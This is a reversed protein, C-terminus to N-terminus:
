LACVHDPGCSTPAECVSADATCDRFCTGLEADRILFQTAITPDVHVVVCRAGAGCVDMGGLAASDCPAIQCFGDSCFGFGLPNPCQDNSTCPSGVTATTSGAQQAGPTPYCFPHTAHDGYDQRAPVCADVARCPGPAGVLGDTGLTCDPACIAFSQFETFGFAVCEQGASCAYAGGLDCNGRLCTGGQCVGYPGRCDADTTCSAGTDGGSASGRECRGSAIECISGPRSLPAGLDYDVSECQANSSCGVHCAGDYMCFYGDRCGGTAGDVRDCDALCQYHTTDSAPDYYAEGCRSGTPCDEMTCDRSCYGGPWPRAGPAGTFCTLRPLCDTDAACAAGVGGLAPGSDGMGTPGSAGCATASVLVLAVM